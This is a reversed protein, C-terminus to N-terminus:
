EAEPKTNGDVGLAEEPSQKLTRTDEQLEGTAQNRVPNIVEVPGGEKVRVGENGNVTNQKVSNEHNIRATERAADFNKEQTTKEVPESAQKKNSDSM